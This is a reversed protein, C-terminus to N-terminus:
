IIGHHYLRNKQTENDFEWIQRTSFLVIKDNYLIFNDCDDVNHSIHFSVFNDIHNLYNILINKWSKCIKKVIFLYQYSLFDFIYNTLVLPLCTYNYYKDSV